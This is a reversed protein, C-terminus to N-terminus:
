AILSKIIDNMPFSPEHDTWNLQFKKGKLYLYAMLQILMYDTAMNGPMIMSVNKVKDSQLVQKLNDVEAKKLKQKTHVEIFGNELEKIEM